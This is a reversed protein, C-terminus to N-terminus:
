SPFYCVGFLVCNLGGLSMSSFLKRLEPFGPGVLPGHIRVV